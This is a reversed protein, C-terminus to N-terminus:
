CNNRIRINSPKNHIVQSSRLQKIPVIWTSRMKKREQIRKQEAALYAPFHISIRKITQCFVKFANIIREALVRLGELFENLQSADIKGNM